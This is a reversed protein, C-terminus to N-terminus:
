SIKNKYDLKQSCASNGTRHSCRTSSGGISWCPEETKLLKRMLISDDYKFPVRQLRRSERQTYSEGGQHQTRHVRIAKTKRPARSWKRLEHFKSHGGPNAKREGQSLLQGLATLQLPWLAYRTQKSDKLFWKGWRIDTCASVILIVCVSFAVTKLVSSMLQQYYSTRKFLPSQVNTKYWVVQDGNKVKKYKSFSNTTM